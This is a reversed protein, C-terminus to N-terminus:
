AVLAEIGLGLVVCGVAALIVSTIAAYYRTMWVRFTELMTRSRDGLALSLALPAGVGATGIAVFVAFVLIQLGAGAGSEAIAATAALVLLLNKPRPAAMVVGAAAAKVPGLSDIAGMWRPTATGVSGRSSLFWQGAAVLLLAAGLAVKVPGIWDAPVGHDTPHLGDAVTLMIAGLVTLGAIWGVTFSTAKWRGGAVLMLVVAVIPVPSIAVGVGIPVIQGLASGM